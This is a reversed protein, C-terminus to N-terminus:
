ESRACPLKSLKIRDHAGVRLVEFLHHSFDRRPENPRPPAFGLPRRQADDLELVLDYPPRILHAKFSLSFPTTHLSYSEISM